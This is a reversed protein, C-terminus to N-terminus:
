KKETLIKKLAILEQKISGLQKGLEEVPPPDTAPASPAGAEELLKRAGAITYGQEHLLR